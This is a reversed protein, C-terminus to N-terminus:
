YDSFDNHRLMIDKTGNSCTSKGQLTMNSQCFLATNFSGDSSITTNKVSFM